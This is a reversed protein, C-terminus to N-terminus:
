MGGMLKKLGRKVLHIARQESTGLLIGIEGYRLGQTRLLISNYQQQTLRSMAARLRLSQEKQLFNWEPNADPDVPEDEPRLAMNIEEHRRQNTRHVDMALHRVVTYLWSRLNDEDNGQRLHTALRLFSEQIVDDIEDKGLGLRRLFQELKPTLSDYFWLTKQHWGSKEHEEMLKMGSTHDYISDKEDQLANTKRASMKSESVLVVKKGCSRRWHVSAMRELPIVLEDGQMEACTEVPAGLRWPLRPNKITARMRSQM